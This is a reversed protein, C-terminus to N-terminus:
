KWLTCWRLDKIHNQIHRQSCIVLLFLFLIHVQPSGEHNFFCKSKYAVYWALYELITCKGNKKKEKMETCQPCIRCKFSLDLVQATNEAIASVIKRNATCGCSVWWGDFQSLVDVTSSDSIRSWRKSHAREVKGCM